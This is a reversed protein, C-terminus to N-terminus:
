DPPQEIKQEVSEHEGSSVPRDSRRSSAAEKTRKLLGDVDIVQAQGTQEKLKREISIGLQKRARSLRISVTGLPIDLMEAIEKYRYGEWYFLEVVIQYDLALERLADLMLKQRRENAVLTSVGSGMAAISHDAIDDVKERKTQKRWYELLVLRGIGILYMCPSEIVEGTELKEFLRVFTVQLLDKVDSDNAVKNAFFREVIAACHDYIEENTM